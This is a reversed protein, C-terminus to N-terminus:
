AARRPGRGAARRLGPEGAGTGPPSGIAAALVGAALARWGAAGAAEPVGPDVFARVAVGYLHRQDITQPAGVGRLWPPRDATCAIMPVGAHHAEVVAPHLEVAATGSTTLVVAPVGTAAGIGVAVFGASREDHHVSLHIREDAALALALPTSRSGPSVVAHRVGGRVWQDVLTACYTAAVTVDTPTGSVM